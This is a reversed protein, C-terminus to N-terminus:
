PTNALGTSQQATKTVFSKEVLIPPIGLLVTEVTVLGPVVPPAGDRPRLVFWLSGNQSTFALTDAQEPTVRLQINGGGGNGAGIGTAQSTPAGLVLINQMITKVVPRATGDGVPVGNKDVPKVNFGAVVDVYDGSQVQGILGNAAGIPLSIVRQNEVLRTSLVNTTTSSFDSLTLQQGPYIDNVAIRGRLSAPDSIAGDKALEKTTTKEQFLDKTAIATGPTGSPILSKAVLVPVSDSSENVSSRYRSLYVLLAVAALLAALGGV